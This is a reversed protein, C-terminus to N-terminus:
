IDSLDIPQGNNGDAVPIWTGDRYQQIGMQSPCVAPLSIGAVVTAGCALPGVQFMMPGTFSTIADQLAVPDTATVGLDNMLKAVTVVTSFTLPALGTTDVTAAGPAPEAYQRMKALYTDVGAELNPIYQSYGNSGFSWGDPVPDTLGLSALHDGVPTSNCLGASFVRPAMDLAALADYVSICGPVDVVVLAVDADVAGAAVLRDAVETADSAPAIPVFVAPVGERELLPAIFLSAATNGAPSDLHLVAVESPTPATTAIHHSLGVVVGAGGVTFTRATPSLFDASTLATAILVPKSTGIADYLVQNGVQLAGVVVGVLDPDSAFREGCAQAQAETEIPCPVLELPRGAAGGLEENLYAVAAAAAPTSEPSFSDQNVFGLRIPEGAARGPTAGVYSLGWTDTAPVTTTPVTAASAPVSTAPATTTTASGESGTSCAGAAVAMAVALLGAHAVAHLRASRSPRTTLHRTM